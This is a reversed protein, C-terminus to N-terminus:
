DRLDRHQLFSIYPLEKFTFYFHLHKFTDANKQATVDYCRKDMLLSLSTITHPPRSHAPRSFLFLQSSFFGLREM